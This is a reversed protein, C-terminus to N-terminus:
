VSEQAEIYGLKKAQKSLIFNLNTRMHGLNLRKDIGNQSELLSSKLKTEKEGESENDKRRRKMEEIMEKEEKM